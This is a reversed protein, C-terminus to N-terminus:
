YFLSPPDISARATPKKKKDLPIDFNWFLRLTRGKENKIVSIASGLIGWEFSGVRPVGVNFLPFFHFSWTGEDVGKGKRWYTNLVLTRDGDERKWHAVVPFVITTRNPGRKWDFYVPAVIDTTDKGRRWHWYIPFLTRDTEDPTTRQYFLLVQDTREKKPFDDRHYFFPVVGFSKSQFFDEHDFYLLAVNTLSEVTRYRWYLPTIATLSTEDTKNHLYFPFWLTTGNGTEPDRGHYFIPLPLFLSSLKGKQFHFYTPGFVYHNSQTASTSWGFLPAIFRHGGDSKLAYHFLPFFTVNHAGDDQKNLWLLPFLGTSWTHASRGRYFPGLVFLGANKDDDRSYYFPIGFLRATPGRRWGAYVPLLFSTWDKDDTAHYFTLWWTHSSKGFHDHYLFPLGWFYSGSERKGWGFLPAFGADTANGKRHYFAPGFVTTNSDPRAFRWFLPFVVDAQYDPRRTGGYLPFFVTTTEDKDRIRWFFPFQVTASYDPSQHTVLLPFFVQTLSQRKEDRIRLYPGVQWADRKAEDDRHHLYLPFAVQTHKPGRDVDWLLPFVGQVQGGDRRSRFVPGFMTFQSHDASDDSHLYLPPLFWNVRKTGSRSFNVIPALGYAYGNKRTSEYFPGVVTTHGNEDAFRNFLGLASVYSSSKHRGAFFLPVFGSDWGEGTEDKETHKKYYFPGAVYTSSKESGGSFFFPFVVGHWRGNLNGFFALPAFGGAWGAPGKYGYITALWGAKTTPSTHLGAIPFIVTTRSQAVRDALTYVLPFFMHFSGRDDTRQYYPGVLVNDTNNKPKNWWHFYFPIFHQYGRPAKKEVYLLFGRAPSGAPASLTRTGRRPWKVWCPASTCFNAM